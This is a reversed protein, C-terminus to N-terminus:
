VVATKCKSVFGRGLNFTTVQEYDVLGQWAVLTASERPFDLKEWLGDAAPLVLLVPFRAM